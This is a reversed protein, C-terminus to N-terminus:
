EEREFIRLKASRARPNKKKDQWSAQIVKKNVLRGKHLHDKFIYKVIRDELSHFTLVFLRGKQALHDILLPVVQEVQELEKNVVLRLALFYKTAPHHGKRKWGDVRAILSSLEETTEFPKERRDEIIARVVRLPKFVEGYKHFIDILDEESSENIIKAATLGERHDMRM